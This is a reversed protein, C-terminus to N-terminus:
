RDIIDKTIKHFQFGYEKAIQEDANKLIVASTFNKEFDLDIAVGFSDPFIFLVTTNEPVFGSQSYPVDTKPVDVGILNERTLVYM